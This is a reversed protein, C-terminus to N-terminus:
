SSKGKNIHTHRVTRSYVINVAALWRDRDHDLNIRDVRECGIIKFYTKINDKWKHKTLIGPKIPIQLYSIKRSCQIIM